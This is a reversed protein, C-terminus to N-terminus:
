LIDGDEKSAYHVHGSSAKLTFSTLIFIILFLIWAQACAEGMKKFVFANKYIYFAYFNTSNNPGGQTMVFAQTFTQLANIIGTLMTFLLVPSISPLTIRLFRDWFNAGDIHAAEYLETSIGQLGALYLVINGGINWLSMIILSILAWEEEYVWGPGQIGLVKLFSNLVGYEPNYVWLWVVSVAVGSVVAPLYYITRFLNMGRMKNNLLMAVFISIFINLPVAFVTYTLTVQVSKYFLPDTFITTYNEFGVWTPPSLINWKTFSIFLSAVMPILTLLVFGILWPAAFLFFGLTDRTSSKMTSISKM